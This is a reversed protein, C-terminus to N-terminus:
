EACLEPEGPVLVRAQPMAVFSGNQADGEYFATLQTASELIPLMEELDDGTLTLCTTDALSVDLPWAVLTPKPSMTPPDDVPDLMLSVREPVYEESKGLENPLWNDLTLLQNWFTSFAQTTGQLCAAPVCPPSQEPGVLSHGVGYFVLDVSVLRAGPMNSGDTFDGDGDLLGLEGARAAITASGSETISRAVPMVLLPGPYIAPVAVNGNLYKGDTITVPPLWAFTYEPPISQTYYGRLYFSRPATPSGAPEDSTSAGPSATPLATPGQEPTTTPRPTDTPSISPGAPVLACGAALLTTALLLTVRATM